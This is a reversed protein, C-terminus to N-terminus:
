NRSMRELISSVKNDLGAKAKKEAAISAKTPRGAKTKKSLDVITKSATVNGAKAEKILTELGLATDRVRREERWADIYKKFFPANCLTQWHKWSGLLIQSAEYETDCEMYIKYMSPFGKHEHDKLTYTAPIERKHRTETFLGRTLMTGNSSRVNSLDIKSM